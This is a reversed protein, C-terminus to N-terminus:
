CVYAYPKFQKASAWARFHYMNSTVHTSTIQRIHLGEPKPCVYILCIGRVWTVVIVQLIVQQLHETINKNFSELSCLSATTLCWNMLNEASKRTNIIAPTNIKFSDDDMVQQLAKVLVNDHRDVLPIGVNYFLKM